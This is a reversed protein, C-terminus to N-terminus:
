SGQSLRFIFPQINETLSWGQTSYRVHGLGLHGKLQELDSKKIQDSVLGPRKCSDTVPPQVADNLTVIGCAEQGRHQLAYLGLYILFSAQSDGIVGIVGCEEHLSDM